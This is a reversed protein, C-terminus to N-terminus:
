AASAARVYHPSSPLHEAYCGEYAKRGVHQFRLLTDAYIKGGIRRWLRCFTFDEGWLDKLGDEAPQDEDQHLENFFLAWAKGGPLAEERYAREPYAEIMAGIAARTIRLFGTPVMRMELLGRGDPVAGPVSKAPFELRDQRKPYVGCVMDCPHSLLRILAGDEWNVDDDIMVLDTVEPQAYADALFMNRTRFIMSDGVTFKVRVQWGLAFMRRVENLLCHFTEARPQGTYTPMALYVNKSM